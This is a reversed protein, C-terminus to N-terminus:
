KRTYSIGGANFQMILNGLVDEFDLGLQTCRKKFSIWDGKFQVPMLLNLRFLEQKRELFENEPTILTRAAATKM